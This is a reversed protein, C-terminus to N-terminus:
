FCPEQLTLSNCSVHVLACLCVNLCSAFGLFGTVLTCTHAAILLGHFLTHEKQCVRKLVFSLGQLTFASYHIQTDADCLSPSQSDFLLLSFVYFFFTVSFYRLDTFAPVLRKFLREVKPEFTHSCDELDLIVLLNRNISYSQM